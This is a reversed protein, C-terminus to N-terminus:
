NINRLLMHVAHFRRGHTRNGHEKVEMTITNYSQCFDVCESKVDIHTNLIYLLITVLAEEPIKQCYIHM